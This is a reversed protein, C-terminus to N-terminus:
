MKNLEFQESFRSPCGAEGQRSIIDPSYRDLVRELEIEAKNEEPIEINRHYAIQDILNIADLKEIEALIIDAFDPHIASNLAMGIVKADPDAAKIAKATIIVFQAYEAAQGSARGRPENWIEWEDVHNKYRSVIATIYREWANLAEESTPWEAGLYIGGAGEYIPNGYSLNVWPKVGQETMDFIIEDLWAWNYVGKEKECKAWGSQIRAKKAGLPGLYDKWLAYISMDRDMMEAGVSIRSSQIELAHRPKIKGTFNFPVDKNQLESSAPHQMVKEHSTFVGSFILTILIFILKTTM